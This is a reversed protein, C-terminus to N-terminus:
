SRSYQDPRSEFGRGEACSASARGRRGNGEDVWLQYVLKDGAAGVRNGLERLAAM